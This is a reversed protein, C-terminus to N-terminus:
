DGSLLGFDPELPRSTDQGGFQPLREGEVLVQVSTVASLNGMTDVISYLLLNQEAASVPASTLFDGSFNICCVGDDLTVDMLQVSEPLLTHLDPDQPGALLNQAITLYLDDGETLTLERAEFGLGKGMARPFYLVATIQRPEEETGTFIVDEPTLIQRARQPLQAGDVTISVREVGDLQCLTLTICYDALTLSVGSLEGYPASLDLCLLGDELTWDLLRTGNPIPNALADLEPGRLLADMLPDVAAEGNFPETAVVKGMTREPDSFWLRIGGSDEEKAACASLLILLAALLPFIRRNM